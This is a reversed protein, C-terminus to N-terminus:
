AENYETHHLLSFCYQQNLSHHAGRRDGSQHRGVEREHEEIHRLEEWGLNPAHGASDDEEKPLNQPSSSGPHTSETFLMFHM